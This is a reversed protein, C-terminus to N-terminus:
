EFSMPTRTAIMTRTMESRLHHKKAAPTEPDVDESAKRKGTSKSSVGVPKARLSSRRQMPKTPTTVPSTVPSEGIANVYDMTESVDLDIESTTQANGIRPATFPTETPPM